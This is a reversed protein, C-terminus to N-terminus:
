MLICPIATFCLKLSKCLCKMRKKLSIEDENSRCRGIQEAKITTEDDVDIGEIPHFEDEKTDDNITFSDKNSSVTSLEM